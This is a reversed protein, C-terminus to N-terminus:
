GFNVPTGGCGGGGGRTSAFWPLITSLTAQSFVGCKAISVSTERSFSMQSVFASIGFQHRTVVWIHTTSRIPRAALSIQNLRDSASGMDPYHRMM